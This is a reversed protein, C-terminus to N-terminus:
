SLSWFLTPQSSGGAAGSCSGRRASRPPRSRFSVRSIAARPTSWSSTCRGTRLGRSSRESSSSFRCDTREAGATAFRHYSEDFFSAVVTCSVHVRPGACDAQRRVEIISDFYKCINAHDLSRLVDAQLVSFHSECPKRLAHECTCVFCGVPPAEHDARESVEHEAASREEASMRGIPIQKVVLLLDDARRRVVNVTGYSGQGIQQGIDYLEEFSSDM